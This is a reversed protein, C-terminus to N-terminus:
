TDDDVDDARHASGAEVPQELSGPDRVRDGAGAAGCRLGVERQDVESSRERVALLDDNGHVTRCGWPSPRSGRAAGSGSWGPGDVEVGGCEFLEIRKRPDPGRSEVREAVEDRRSM